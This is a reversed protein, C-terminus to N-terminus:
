KDGKKLVFVLGLILVAGGIGYILYKGWQSFAPVPQQTITITQAPVTATTKPTTVKSTATAIAQTVATGAKEQLKKLYDDFVGSVGAPVAPNEWVESKLVDPPDWGLYSKEETTDASYWEYKLTEPNYLYLQAYIHNYRNPLEGIMVYKESESKDLDTLVTKFRAPIGVAQALSALLIAHGDCDGAKRELILYPCEILEMGHPDRTYRINDRVWNFLANAEGTYDKPKVKSIIASSISIMEWDKTTNNVLRWMERITKKIGHYGNPVKLESIVNM